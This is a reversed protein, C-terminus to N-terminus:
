SFRSFDPKRREFFAAFAEAAEASMLRRKFIEGEEEIRQQLGPADRMLRKTVALAGAPKAALTRAAAQAAARAEGPATAHSAIGWAAATAGDVVQGLAFMSYARAHGIRAPLLLSSAAEPSVALDIFPASLRADSAVFVLDCHLLMTLGIGIAAGEVAALMPKEIRALAALFRFVNLPGRGGAENQSAFDSLDNGATFIQDDGQIVVARVSADVMARECADALIGYMADTLANKKQPRAFTLTMVGAEVMVEVDAMEGDGSKGTVM